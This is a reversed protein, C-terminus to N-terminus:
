KLSIFGFVYATFSQENKKIYSQVNQTLFNLFWSLPPAALIWCTPIPTTPLYKMCILFLIFFNCVHFFDQMNPSSKTITNGLTCPIDTSINHIHLQIDTRLVCLVQFYHFWVVALTLLFKLNMPAERYNRSGKPSMSIITLLLM